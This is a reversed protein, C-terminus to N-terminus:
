PCSANALGDDIVDCNVGVNDTRSTSGCMRCDAVRSLCTALTEASGASGSCSGPFIDELNEPLTVCHKDIKKELNTVHKAVKGKQDEIVQVFCNQLTGSSEISGDKLGAKQCKSLDEERRRRDERPGEHRTDSM